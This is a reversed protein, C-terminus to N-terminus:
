NSTLIHVYKTKIDGYPILKFALAKKDEVILDGGKIKEYLFPFIPVFTPKGSATNNLPEKIIGGQLSIVEDLVEFYEAKKIKVKNTDFM